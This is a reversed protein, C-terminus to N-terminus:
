GHLAAGRLLRLAPYDVTEGTSRDFPDNMLRYLLFLPARVLAEREM